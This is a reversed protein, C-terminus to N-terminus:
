RRRKKTCFFYLIGIGWCFLIGALLLIAIWYEWPIQKYWKVSPEWTNQLSYVAFLISCLLNVAVASFIQAAGIRERTFTSFSSYTSDDNHDKLFVIIYQDESLSKLQPLYRAFASNELKRINKLKNDNIFSIEFDNPVVTFCFFNKIVPFQLSKETLVHLVNDSINRRENIKYDYIYSSKTIGPKIYALSKMDTEILIRIYVSSNGTNGTTTNFSVHIYKDSSIVKCDASVVDFSERSCFKLSCGNRKDGNLPSNTKVIDNFIFRCISEDALEVHLSKVICRDDLFPLFIFLENKDQLNSKEIEVGIELCANDKRLEWTCLQLRNITLEAQQTLIYFSNEM